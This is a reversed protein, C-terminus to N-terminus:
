GGLLKRLAEKVKPAQLSRRVEESEEHAKFKSFDHRLEKETFEEWVEEGCLGEMEDIYSEVYYSTGISELLRLAKMREM